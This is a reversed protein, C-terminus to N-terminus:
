NKEKKFNKKFEKQLLKIRKNCKEEISKLQLTFEKRTNHQNQYYLKYSIKKSEEYKQHNHKEEQNVKKIKIMTKKINEKHENELNTINNKKLLLNNNHQINIKKKTKNHRTEIDSLIQSYALKIEKIKALYKNIIETNKEEYKTVYMQYNEDHCALEFEKKSTINKITQNFKEFNILHKKNLKSLEILLKNKTYLQQKKLTEVKSKYSSIIAQKNTKYEKFEIIYSKQIEKYNRIFNKHYIDKQISYHTILAENIKFCHNEFQKRSVEV